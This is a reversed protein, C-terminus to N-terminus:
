EGDMRRKEGKRETKVKGGMKKKEERNWGKSGKKIRGGRRARGGKLRHQDAVRHWSHGPTNAWDWHTQTPPPHIPALSELDFCLHPSHTPLSSFVTGAPLRDYFLCGCVQRSTIITIVLTILLPFSEWTSETYQWCCIWVKYKQVNVSWKLQWFNEKLMPGTKCIFNWMVLIENNNSPSMLGLLWTLVSTKQM